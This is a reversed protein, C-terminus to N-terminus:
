REVVSSTTPVGIPENSRPGSRTAWRRKSSTARLGPIEGWTRFTSRLGHPTIPRGSTSTSWRPKGAEDRNMDKLLGLMAM